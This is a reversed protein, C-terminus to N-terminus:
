CQKKKWEEYPVESGGDHTYLESQKLNDLSTKFIPFCREDGHSCHTDLRFGTDVYGNYGYELWCRNGFKDYVIVEFDERDDYEKSSNDKCEKSSNDKLKRLLEASLLPDSAIEFKEFLMKLQKYAIDVDHLKTDVLLESCSTQIM